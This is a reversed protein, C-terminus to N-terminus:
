APDLLCDSISDVDIELVEVSLFDGYELAGSAFVVPFQSLQQHQSRSGLQQLQQRTEGGIACQNAGQSHRAHTLM